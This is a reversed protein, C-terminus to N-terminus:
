KSWQTAESVLHIVSQQWQDKQYEPVSSQNVQERLNPCFPLVSNRDTVVLWVLHLVMKVM